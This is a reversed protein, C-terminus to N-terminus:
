VYLMCEVFETRGRQAQRCHTRLQRMSQDLGTRRPLGNRMRHRARSRDRKRTLM